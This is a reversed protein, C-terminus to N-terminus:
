NTLAQRLAAAITEPEEPPVVMGTKGHTIWEDACATFSQIPFAGMVMAELLSPPIADSISLGPYVRAAGFLLLIEEHTTPPVVELTLGTDQALLEAAIRVDHRASYIVIRYPQLEARSRALAQLGVLARGAFHQYGKLVVLRRQSPRGPSKL